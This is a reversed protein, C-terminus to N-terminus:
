WIPGLLTLLRRRGREYRAHVAPEAWQRPGESVIMRVAPAIISGTPLCHQVEPNVGGGHGEERGVTVTVPPVRAAISYRAVLKAPLLASGSTTLVMFWGSVLINILYMLM